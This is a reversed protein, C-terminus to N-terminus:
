RERRDREADARAADSGMRPAVGRLGGGDVRCGRAWAQAAHVRGRVHQQHPLGTRATRRRRRVGASGRGILRRRRRARRRAAHLGHRAGRGRSRVHGQRRRHEQSGQRARSEGECRRDRRSRRLQEVYQLTVNTLARTSTIPVAGPMHEQSATLPHRRRGHVRPRRADDAPGDGCGARTTAVDVFVSSEKM